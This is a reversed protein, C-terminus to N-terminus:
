GNCVTGDDPVADSVLYAAVITDICSNGSGVTGHGEGENTVLVGQELREAVAVGAAYPTAPDGTTSIVLIPPTGPATVPELPDPPVPWDVCRLYDTVIAEGFRPASAAAAKGAALFADPDGTPWAYDLCNVAFYVDFDGIGLYYDALEVLGSGDGDLANRLALDLVPWLQESYLAASIGIVAEGPGAARNADPAPIGGPEEALRLVEDVAGKPDDLRCSGSAPCSTDLRDLATEFGEAQATAGELGSPGLEVVADLIMSRIRQPFLDAYVQGIATGYSGGYYSLTADGMAARVSDLDRAVDRTGVHALLDGASRECGDAVEAALDVMARRDAADEVTPDVGYVREYDLGCDLPESGQLGRPEVGVLDFHEPVTDPLLPAIQSVFEVASAGPGGPNVFLAGLREGSAPLRLVAIDIRDGDPEAYDLPVALSACQAAGCDDWRIPDPRFGNPGIAPDGADPRAITSSPAADEGTSDDDGGGCATVALALVLAVALTRRAM